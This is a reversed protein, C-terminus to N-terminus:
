SASPLPLVIADVNSAEYLTVGVSAGSTRMAATWLVGDIPSAAVDSEFRSTPAVHAIGTLAGARTDINPATVTGIPLPPPSVGSAAILVAFRAPAMARDDISLASNATLSAASM